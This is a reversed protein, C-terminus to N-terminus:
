FFLDSSTKRKRYDAYYTKAREIDNSQTSKEGGTLIVVIKHNENAFYIRYGTGFDIRLEHIGDGVSKVDGFNGFSLRKLRRIVRDKATEHLEDLWRRFPIKGEITSYYIIEKM